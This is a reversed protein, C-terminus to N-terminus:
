FTVFHVQIQCNEKDTALHCAYATTIPIKHIFWIKEDVRAQNGATHIDLLPILLGRGDAKMVSEKITWYDFFKEHSITPQSIELWQAATMYNQFDTVAIPKIQEIDIGLRTKASIACVVYKGSHSLNFDISEDIFPRGQTSRQVQTLDYGRALLIKKLLLASLLGAHQDQWRRYRNIKQQSFEPLQQWYFHWKEASFPTTFYTYFIDVTVM